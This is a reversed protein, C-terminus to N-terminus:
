VGAPPPEPKAKREFVQIAPEELAFGDGTRKGMKGAIAAVWQPWNAAAQELKTWMKPRVHVTVRVGDCDLAFAKWGNADTTVETPLANIKITLELKGPTSM